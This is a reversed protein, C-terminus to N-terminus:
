ITGRAESPLSSSVCTRVTATRSSGSHYLTVMQIRRGGTLEVGVNFDEGYEIVDPASKILPRVAETGDDNFLYAPKLIQATDVGLDPDGFPAVRDGVPVSNTADDGTLMATADPLLYLNGHSSKPVTTKVPLKKMSGDAPNFLQFHLSARQELTAASATGGGILVTGDPLPTVKTASAPQYLPKQLEWKWPQPKAFDIM